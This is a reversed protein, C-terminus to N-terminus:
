KDFHRMKRTCKKLLLQQTGQGALFHSSLPFLTCGSRIELTKGEAIKSPPPPKNQSKHSIPADVGICWSLINRNILVIKSCDENENSIRYKKFYELFSNWTQSKIPPLPLGVRWGGDSTGRQVQGRRKENKKTKM